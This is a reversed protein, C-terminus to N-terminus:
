AIAVGGCAQFRGDRPFMVESLMGKPSKRNCMSPHAHALARDIWKADIDSECDAFIHLTPRLGTARLARCRHWAASGPDSLHNMLRQKPNRSVGIYFVTRTQPDILGYIKWTM